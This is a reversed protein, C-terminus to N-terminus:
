TLQSLFPWGAFNSTQFSNQFVMCKVVYIMLIRVKKGYKSSQLGAMELSTSRPTVYMLLFGQITTISLLISFPFIETM